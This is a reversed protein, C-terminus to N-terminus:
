PRGPRRAPKAPDVFKLTRWHRLATTSADAAAKLRREKEGGSLSEAELRLVDELDWWTLARTFAVIEHRAFDNELMLERWVGRAWASLDGPPRPLAPNTM